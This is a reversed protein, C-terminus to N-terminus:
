SNTTEKPGLASMEEVTMYKKLEDRDFLNILNAIAVGLAEGARRFLM